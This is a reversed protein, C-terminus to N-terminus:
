RPKGFEITTNTTVDIVKREVLDLVVWESEFDPGGRGGNAMCDGDSIEDKIYEQADLLGRYAYLSIDTDKCKAVLYLFNDKPEDVMMAVEDEDEIVYGWDFGNFFAKDLEQAIWDRLTM